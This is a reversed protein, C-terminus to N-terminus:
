KKPSRIPKNATPASPLQMIKGDVSDRVMIPLGQLIQNKQVPDNMQGDYGVSMEQGDHIFTSRRGRKDTEWKEGVIGIYGPSEKSQPVSGVNEMGTYSTFSSYPLNATSHTQAKTAATFTALLIALLIKTLNM